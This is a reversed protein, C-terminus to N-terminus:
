VYIPWYIGMQWDGFLPFTYCGPARQPRSAMLQAWSWVAVLCTQKSWCLLLMHFLHIGQTKQVIVLDRTNKTCPLHLLFATRNVIVHLLGWTNWNQCRSALPIRESVILMEMLHDSVFADAEGASV